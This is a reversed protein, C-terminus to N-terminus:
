PNEQSVDPEDRLIDTIIADATARAETTVDIPSNGGNGNVTVELLKRAPEPEPWGAIVLVTLSFSLWIVVSVWAGPQRQVIWLDAYLLGWAGKLLAAATFQAIDRGVLIGTAIFVGTGIWIWGWADLTLFFDPTKGTPAALLAYGYMVDLVVLFALFAGRRGIAHWIRCSLEM